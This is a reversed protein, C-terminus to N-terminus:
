RCTVSRDPSILDIVVQDGEVSTVAIPGSGGACCRKAKLGSGCPCAARRTPEPDSVLLEEACAALMDEALEDFDDPPFGIEQRVRRRGLFLLCEIFGAGDARVAQLVGRTYWTLAANLDGMLELQEGVFLLVDPACPKTARFEDAVRRAEEPEGAQALAALLHARADLRLASGDAVAQRCLAVSRSPDGALRHQEAAAVLLEGRNVDDRPTADAALAELREALDAHRGHLEADVVLRDLDELTKPARM